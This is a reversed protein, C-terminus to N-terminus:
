AASPNKFGRACWLTLLGAGGLVCGPSGAVLGAAILVGTLMVVLLDKRSGGGTVRVHAIVLILWLVAGLGLSAWWFRGAAVLREQGQLLVALLWFLAQNLLAVGFILVAILVRTIPFNGQADMRIHSAAASGISAFSPRSESM